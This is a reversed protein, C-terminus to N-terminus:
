KIDYTNVYNIYLIFLFGKDWGVNLDYMHLPMIEGELTVRKKILYMRVHAEVIHSKRMDGVRCILCLRGDRLSIVANKSFMLTESRNKPRSLKAFVVGVLFSQIMVGFSSQLMMVLIAETCKETTFRVGYGITQQTEISFLIAGAFSSIGTVCSTHNKDTNDLDGHVFSIFFWIIAFFVWSCFFGLLFIIITYRWKLDILTTFIDSFYRRRRKDINCRSININGNKFFLRKQQQKKASKGRISMSNKLSLAGSSFSSKLPGNGTLVTSNNGMVRMAKSGKTMSKHLVRISVPAINPQVKSFSSSYNTNSSIFSSNLTAEFPTLFKNNKETTVENVFKKLYNLNFDSISHTNEIHASTTSDQKELIEKQSDDVDNLNKLMLAAEEETQCNFSLSRQYTKSKNSKPDKSESFSVCQRSGNTNNGTNVSLNINSSSKYSNSLITRIVPTTITNNQIFNQCSKANLCHNNSISSNLESTEIIDKLQSIDADDIINKASHNFFYSKFSTNGTKAKLDIKSAAIENQLNENLYVTSIASIPKPAKLDPSLRSNLSLEILNSTFQAPKQKSVDFFYAEDLDCNVSSLNEDVDEEDYISSNLNSNKINDKSNNRDNLLEPSQIDECQGDEKNNPNKNTIIDCHITEEDDEDEEDDDSDCDLTLNKGHNEIIENKYTSKSIRDTLRKGVDKLRTSVINHGKQKKDNIIIHAELDIPQKKQEGLYSFSQNLAEVPNVQLNGTISNSPSSISSGFSIIKSANSLTTNKISNIFNVSKRRITSSPVSLKKGSAISFSSSSINSLEENVLNVNLLQISEHKKDFSNLKKTKSNVSNNSESTLSSISNSKERLFENQNNTNISGKKELINGQKKMM